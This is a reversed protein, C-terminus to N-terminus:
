RTKGGISDANYYGTVGYSANVNKVAVATQYYGKNQLENVKNIAENKTLHMVKGNSRLEYTNGNDPSVFSVIDDNSKLVTGVIENSTNYSYYPTKGNTKSTASYADTYIPSGTTIKVKKGLLMSKFRKNVKTKSKTKKTTKTESPENQDKNKIVKKTATSKKKPLTEITIKTADKKSDEKKNNSCGKFAFISGVTVAALAIAGCSVLIKKKLSKKNNSQEINTIRRTNRKIKGITNNKIGKIAKKSLNKIKNLGSLTLNKINGIIGKRNSEETEFEEEDEDFYEEAPNIEKNIVIRDIDQEFLKNLANNLRKSKEKDAFLDESDVLEQISDDLLEYEVNENNSGFVDDGIHYDELIPKKKNKSTNEKKAEKKLEIYGDKELLDIYYEAEKQNINFQKQIISTNIINQSLVFNVIKVYLEKNFSIENDKESEKNNNEVEEEDIDFSDLSFNDIEDIIDDDIQDPDLLSSKMNILENYLELYEEPIYRTIGNNEVLEKNDSDSNGIREILSNIASLKTVADIHEDLMMDNAINDYAEKISDSYIEDSKISMDLKKSINICDDVRKQLPNTFTNFEEILRDYAKKEELWGDLIEKDTESKTEQYRKELNEIIDFLQIYLDLWEETEKRLKEIDSKTM